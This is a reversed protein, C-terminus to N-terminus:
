RLNSVWLMVPNDTYYDLLQQSINGLREQQNNGLRREHLVLGKLLSGSADSLFGKCESLHMIDYPFSYKCAYSSATLPHRPNRIRSLFTTNTLNDTDRWRSSHQSDTFPHTTRNALCSDCVERGHQWSLFRWENARVEFDGLIFLLM